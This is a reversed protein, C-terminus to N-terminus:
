NTKLAQFSKGVVVGIVSGIIAGALFDSFWHISISVGIGIFFAYIWAWLKASKNQAYYVIIALSVAFAATTHSSPWGWFIGAKWFGFHFVKSVDDALVHPPYDRGTFAKYLSSIFWGLIGAQGTLLSFTVM